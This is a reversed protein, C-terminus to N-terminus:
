KEDDELKLDKGSNLIIKQYIKPRKLTNKTLKAM